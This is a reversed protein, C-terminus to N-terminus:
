CLKKSTLDMIEVGNVVKLVLQFLTLRIPRNLMQKQGSSIVKRILRFVRGCCCCCVHLCFLVIIWLDDVTTRHSSRKPRNM